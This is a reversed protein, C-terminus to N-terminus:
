ALLVAGLIVAAFSIVEKRSLREKIFVHALLLTFLPSCYALASAIDIQGGQAAFSFCLWGAANAFGLCASVSAFKRSVRFRVKKLLIFLTYAVLEVAQITILLLIADQSSGIKFVVDSTGFMVAALIAMLVSNGHIASRTPSQSSGSVILSVGAFIAIIGLTNIISPAKGILTCYVVPVSVATGGVASIIGMPGISLARFYLLNAIALLLGIPIGYSMVAADIAASGRSALAVLLFLITALAILWSVLLTSHTKSENGAEFDVLGDALATLIAWYAGM